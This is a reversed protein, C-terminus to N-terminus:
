QFRYNLSIFPFSLRKGGFLKESEDIKSYVFGVEMGLKDILIRRIFLSLAQYRTAFSVQANLGEGSKASSMGLGFAVISAHGAHGSLYFNSLQLRAGISALDLGHSSHFGSEVFVSFPSTEQDAQVPATFIILLFITAVIQRM